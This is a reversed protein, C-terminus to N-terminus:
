KEEPHIEFSYSYKNYEIPSTRYGRENLFKALAQTEKLDQQSTGRSLARFEGEYYSIQMLKVPIKTVNYFEEVESMLTYLNRTEPKGIKEFTRKYLPDSLGWHDTSSRTFSDGMGREVAQDYAQKGMKLRDEIDGPGYKEPYLTALLEIATNTDEINPSVLLNQIKPHVDPDALADAILTSPTIMAELIMQKLKAETLKM